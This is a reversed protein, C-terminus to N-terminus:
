GAERYSSNEDDDDIDDTEAFGPEVAMPGETRPGQIMVRFAKLPNRVADNVATPEFGCHVM